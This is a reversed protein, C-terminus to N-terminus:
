LPTVHQMLIDALARRMDTSEGFHSLGAGSLISLVDEVTTAPEHALIACCLKHLALFSFVGCDVWNQQSAYSIKQARIQVASPLLRASDAPLTNPWAHSSVLNCEQMM